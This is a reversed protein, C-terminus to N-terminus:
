GPALRGLRLKCIDVSEADAVDDVQPEVGVLLKSSSAALTLRRPMVYAPTFRLRVRRGPASPHGPVGLVDTLILLSV